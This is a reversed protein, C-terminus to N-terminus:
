IYTTLFKRFGIIRRLRTENIIRSRCTLQLRLIALGFLHAFRLLLFGIFILLFRLLTFCWFITWMCIKFSLWRIRFSLFRFCLEYRKFCTAMLLLLLGTSFYRVDNSFAKTISSLCAHLRRIWVLIWLQSLCYLLLPKVDLVSLRRRTCLKLFRVIARINLSDRKLLGCTGAEFGNRHSIRGKLPHGVFIRVRVIEQIPGKLASQIGGKMMSLAERNGLQLALGMHPSRRGEIKPGTGLVCLRM